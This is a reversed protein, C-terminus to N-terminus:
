RWPAHRPLRGATCTRGPWLGNRPASRRAMPLWQGASAQPLIAPHGQRGVEREDRAEAATREDWVVIPGGMRVHKRRGAAPRDEALDRSTLVGVGGVPGVAQLQDVGVGDLVGPDGLAARALGDPEVEEAQAEADIVPVGVVGRDPGDVAEGGLVPGPFPELWRGRQPVHRHNVDM